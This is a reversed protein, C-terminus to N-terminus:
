PKATLGQASALRTQNGDFGLFERAGMSLATAVHLTDM